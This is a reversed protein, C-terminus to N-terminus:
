QADLTAWSKESIPMPFDPQTMSFITRSKGNIPNERVVRLAYAIGNQTARFLFLQTWEGGRNSNFRILVRPNRAADEALIIPAMFSGHPAPPLDGVSITTSGGSFSELSMGKNAILRDQKNLDIITAVVGYLPYKGQNGIVPLAEIKGDQRKYIRVFSVFCFSDGGTVTSLNERQLNSLTTLNKLTEDFAKQNNLISSKLGDAIADFSDRIREQEKTSEDRVRYLGAIELCTLAVFVCLWLGKTVHNEPPWIAMVIGVLGAISIFVGIPPAMFLWSTAILILSTSPLWRQYFTSIFSQWRPTPTYFGRPTWIRM